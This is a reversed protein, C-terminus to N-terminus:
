WKFNNLYLMIIDYEFVIVELKVELDFFLDVLEMMGVYFFM